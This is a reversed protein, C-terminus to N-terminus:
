VYGESEKAIEKHQEENGYTCCGELFSGEGIMWISITGKESVGLAILTSKVLYYKFLKLLFMMEVEYIPRM